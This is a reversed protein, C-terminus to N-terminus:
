FFTEQTLEEALEQNGSTLSLLYGYVTQFYEEYVTKMRQVTDGGQKFIQIGKPTRNILGIFKANTVLNKM